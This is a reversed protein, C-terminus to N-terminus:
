PSVVTCKQLIYVDICLLYYYLFYPRMFNQFTFYIRVVNIQISLPSTLSLLKKLKRITLTLMM